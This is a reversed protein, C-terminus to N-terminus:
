AALELDVSGRAGGRWGVGGVGTLRRVLVKLAVACVGIGVLRPLEGTWRNLPISQTRSGVRTPTKKSPPDLLLPHLPTTTSSNPNSSSSPNSFTPPCSCFFFSSMKDGLVRFVLLTVPWSNSGLASTLCTSVVLNLLVRKWKKRPSKLSSLANKLSPDERISHRNESTSQKSGEDLRRM